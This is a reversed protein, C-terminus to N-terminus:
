SIPLRSNQERKISWGNTTKLPADFYIAASVLTSAIMVRLVKKM